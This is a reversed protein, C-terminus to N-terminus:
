KSLKELYSIINKAIETKGKLPKSVKGDGTVMYATHSNRSINKKDNAVVMDSGSKKLLKRAIKILDEKTRNVELKFGVLLAEPWIDRIITIVKLTKVLKLM